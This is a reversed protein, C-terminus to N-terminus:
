YIGSYEIVEYINRASTPKIKIRLFPASEWAMGAPGLITYGSSHSLLDYGSLLMFPAERTKELLFATFENNSHAVFKEYEEVPIKPIRCESTDAYGSVVFSPTQTNLFVVTDDVAQLAVPMSPHPFVGKAAWPGLVALFAIAIITWKSITICRGLAPMGDDSLNQRHPQLSLAAFGAIFPWTTALIRWGGDRFLFPISLFIGLFSSIWFGCEGTRSIRFTFCVLGVLFLAISAWHWEFSLSRISSIAKCFPLISDVFTRWSQRLAAVFNRPNAKILSFAKDYLFAARQGDSAMAALENSFRDRAQDWSGGMALGCLTYSFNGGASGAKTGYIGNLLYSWGIGLGAALLLFSAVKIKSRWKFRLFLILWIILSPLIFIAGARASMGLSIGFLGVAILQLNRLHFGAYLLSFGLAGLSLGLGESLSTASYLRGYSLMLAIMFVGAWVGSFSFIVRAAIWASLALLLVQLITANKLDFRGLALRVALLTANLPRRQNWDDMKGTDALQMAGRYYASADSWPVFGAIASYKAQNGYYGDEFCSGSWSKALPLMFLVVTALAGWRLFLRGLSIETGSIQAKAKTGIQSYWSISAGGIAWLMMLGPFSSELKAFLGSTRPFSFLASLAPVHGAMLAISTYFLWAVFSLLVFIPLIYGYVMAGQLPFFLAILIILGFLGGYLICRDKLTFPTPAVVKYKRGNTRPDSNDGTSFVVGAGWHSFRGSGVSRIDAHLSHGFKLPREDEYLLIPSRNPTETHDCYSLLAPIPYYFAFTGAVEPTIQSSDMTIMVPNWRLPNNTPNIFFLGCLAAILLFPIRALNVGTFQSQVAVWLRKSPPGPLVIKEM